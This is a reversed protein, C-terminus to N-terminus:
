CAIITKFDITNSVASVFVQEEPKRGLRAPNGDSSNDKSKDDEYAKAFM